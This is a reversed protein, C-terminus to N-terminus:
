CTVDRRVRKLWCRGRVQVLGWGRAKELPQKRVRIWLTLYTLQTLRGLAEFGSQAVCLEGRLMQAPVVHM